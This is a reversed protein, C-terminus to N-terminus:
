EVWELPDHHYVPDEPEILRELGATLQEITRNYKKLDRTKLDRADLEVKVWRGPRVQIHRIIRGAM